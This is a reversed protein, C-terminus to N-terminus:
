LLWRDIVLVLVIIRWVLTENLLSWVWSPIVNDAIWWLPSVVCWVIRELPHIIYRLM